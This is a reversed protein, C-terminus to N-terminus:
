HSRAQSLSAMPFTKLKMLKHQVLFSHIISSAIFSGLSSKHKLNGEIFAVKVKIENKGKGKKEVEKEVGVEAEDEV